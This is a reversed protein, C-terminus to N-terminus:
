TKDHDDFFKQIERDTERATYWDMWVFLLIVLGVGLAISPIMRLRGVGYDVCNNDVCIFSNHVDSRFENNTRLRCTTEKSHWPSTTM